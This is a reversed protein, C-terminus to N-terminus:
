PLDVAFEPHFRKSCVVLCLVLIALTCAYAAHAGSVMRESPLGLSAKCLRASMSAPSILQSIAFMSIWVIYQTAVDGLAAGPVLPFMVSFPILPHVGLVTLLPLGILIVAGLLVTSQSMGEFLRPVTAILPAGAFLCGLLGCASLLLLDSTVSHIADAIDTVAVALPRRTWLADTVFTASGAAAVADPGSFGFLLLLGLLLLWFLFLPWLHRLRGLPRDSSPAVLGLPHFWSNLFAFLFLPLGLWLVGHGPLGPLSSTVIAVSATTPLVFMTANVARMTLVGIAIRPQAVEALAACLVGVTSVGLPVALLCAAAYVIPGLMRGSLRALLQLLAADLPIRAFVKRLLCIGVLMDLVSRYRAIAAHFRIPIDFLLCLLSAGAGLLIGLQVSRQRWWSARNRLVLLAFGLALLVGRGWVAHKTQAEAHLMAATLLGAALTAMSRLTASSAM